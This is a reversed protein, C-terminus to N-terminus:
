GEGNGEAFGGFVVVVRNLFCFLCFRETVATLKVTRGRKGFLLIPGRQNSLNTKETACGVDSM